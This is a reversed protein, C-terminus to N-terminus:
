HPLVHQHHHRTVAQFVSIRSSSNAAGLGSQEAALFTSRERGVCKALQETLKIAPSTDVTCGAMTAASAKDGLERVVADAHPNDHFQGAVFM